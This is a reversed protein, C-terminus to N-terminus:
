DKLKVIHDKLVRQATTRIVIVLTILFHVKLAYSQTKRVGQAINERQVFTELSGMLHDHSRLVVQVSGALIVSHLSMQREKAKVSIGGLAPLPNTPDKQASFDRRVNEEPPIQLACVIVLHLIIMIKLNTQGPLMSVSIDQQVRGPLNQSGRNM